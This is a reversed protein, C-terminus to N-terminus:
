RSTLFSKLARRETMTSFVEAQTEFCTHVPLGSVTPPAKPLDLIGESGPMVELGSEQTMCEERTRWMQWLSLSVYMHKVYLREAEDIAFPVRGGDRTDYGGYMRKEGSSFPFLFPRTQDTQYMKKTPKPSPAPSPAPTAAQPRFGSPGNPNFMGPQGQHMMSGMDQDDHHYHHRIPIPNYAEALKSTSISAKQVVPPVPPPSFSPYKTTTEQHFVEFDIPTTKIIPV